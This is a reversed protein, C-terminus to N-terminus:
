ACPQDASNSLCGHEKFINLIDQVGRLEDIKEVPIRIDFNEDLGALLSLMGLSDWAPIEDRKTDPQINEPPEEFLNAIWELADMLTMADLRAVGWATKIWLKVLLAGLCWSKM